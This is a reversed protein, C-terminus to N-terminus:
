GMERARMGQPWLCEHNRLMARDRDEVIRGRRQVAREVLMADPRPCKTSPM